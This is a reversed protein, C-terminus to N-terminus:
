FVICEGDDKMECDLQLLNLHNERYNYLISPEAILIYKNEEVNEIRAYSRFGRRAKEAFTSAYLRVPLEYDRLYVFGPNNRNAEEIAARIMQDQVYGYGKAIQSEINKTSLSAEAFPMISAVLDQMKRLKERDRFLLPIMGGMSAIHTPKGNVLCYWDIDQEKIQRESLDAM